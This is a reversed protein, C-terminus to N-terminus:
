NVARLGITRTGLGVCGLHLRNQFLLPADSINLDAEDSELPPLVFNCVVNQSRGISCGRHSGSSLLKRGIRSCSCPQRRSRGVGRGMHGRSCPRMHCVHGCSCVEGITIRGGEGGSRWVGKCCAVVELTYTEEAGAFVAGGASNMMSTIVAQVM